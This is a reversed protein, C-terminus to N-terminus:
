VARGAAADAIQTRRERPRHHERVEPRRDIVDRRDEVGLHPAQRGDEHQHSGHREDEDGEAVQLDRAAVRLATPADGGGALREARADAHYRARQHDAGYRSVMAM